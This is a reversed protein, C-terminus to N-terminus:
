SETEENQWRQQELAIYEIAEEEWLAHRASSPDAWVPLRTDEHEGANCGSMTVWGRLRQMLLQLQYHFDLPAGPPAVPLFQQQNRYQFLALLEQILAEHRYWCPPVVQDTLGYRRVLEPVWELLVGLTEAREESDLRWWNIPAEMVPKVPAPPVRSEPPVPNEPREGRERVM